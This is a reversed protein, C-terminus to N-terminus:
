KLTNSNTKEVEKTNPNLHLKNHWHSHDVDGEDKSKSTVNFKFLPGLFLWTAICFPATLTPIGFPLFFSDMATQIFFTAIIAIVTWIATKWNVSYFTMGIAIGTLVASFAFLGEATDQPNAKFVIALFLTIASGLAAWIAAWRNSIALAVLFFIGTPWSKILFVQSIGRLWYIVLNSFEMNLDYTDRVSAGLTHAIETSLVPQSLGGGAYAGVIKATLLFLWTSFVFPFTLSNIKWAAMWNNFAQRFITSMISCFILAIWTYVTVPNGLFTFIGCGVLAGNFGWLGIDGDKRPLPLLFGTLTSILVGAFMGWCVLPTGEWYAGWVIGLAFVFGTWFNNQFMVQSIGKFYGIIFRLSFIQSFNFKEDVNINTSDM